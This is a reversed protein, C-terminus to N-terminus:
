VRVEASPGGRPQALGAPELRDRKGILQSAIEEEAMSGATQPAEGSNMANFSIAQSVELPFLGTGHPPPHTMWYGPFIREVLLMM